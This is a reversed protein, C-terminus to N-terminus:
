TAIGVVSWSVAPINLWSRLSWDKPNRNRAPTRVPSINILLTAPENRIAKVSSKAKAGNIAMGKRPPPSEKDSKAAVRQQKGLRIINESASEVKPETSRSSSLAAVAIAHPMPATKHRVEGAM